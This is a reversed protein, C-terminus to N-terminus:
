VWRGWAWVRDCLHVHINRRKSEKDFCELHVIVEISSRPATFLKHNLGASCNSLLVVLSMIEACYHDHLKYINRQLDSVSLYIQFL